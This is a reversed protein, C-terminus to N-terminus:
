SAPELPEFTIADCNLVNAIRVRLKPNIGRTGREAECITSPSVGLAEALARQRWGARIRAERLAAPDHDVPTKRERPTDPM